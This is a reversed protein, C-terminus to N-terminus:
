NQLDSLQIAEVQCGTAGLNSFAQLNGPVCPTGLIAGCSLVALCGSFLFTKM